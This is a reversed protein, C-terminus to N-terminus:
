KTGKGVGVGHSTAGEKPGLKSTPTNRSAALDAARNAGATGGNLRGSIDTIGICRLVAALSEASKGGQRSM